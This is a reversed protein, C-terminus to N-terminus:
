SRSSGRPPERRQKREAIREPSLDLHRWIVGYPEELMEEDDLFFSM